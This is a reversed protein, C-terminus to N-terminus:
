SEPAAPVELAIMVSVSPGLGLGTCVFNLYELSDNGDSPPAFEYIAQELTLGRGAYLKLQRELDAWGLDVSVYWGVDNPAGPLHSANPGHRLDGPNNRLTPIAGPVGFGEQKAILQALRSTAPM